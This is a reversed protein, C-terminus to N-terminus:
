NNRQGFEYTVESGDDSVMIAIDTMNEQKLQEYGDFAIGIKRDLMYDTKDILITTGYYTSIMLQNNLMNYQVDKIMNKIALLDYDYSQLSKSLTQLVQNTSSLSIFDGEGFNYVVTYNSCEFIIPQVKFRDLYEEEDLITLVKFDEDLVVYTNEVGNYLAYLPQREEVHVIFKNPFKTEIKLVKAFPTKKELKKIYEEKKQAFLSRGMAFQGDKIMQTTDFSQTTPSVFFISVSKLTFTTMVVIITVIVFLISFLAIVKKKTM